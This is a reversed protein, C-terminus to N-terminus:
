RPVPNEEASWTVAAIKWGKDTRVLQWGEKGWANKYDGTMFAYDFWVHAVEGDTDIRVNSFTESKVQRSRAISEIFARPSARQVKTALPTATDKLGANYRRVSDDTYVVTWSIDERLFLQMFGAVDKNVIAKGFTDIVAEIQERSSATTQACVSQSVPLLLSAALVAAPLGMRM